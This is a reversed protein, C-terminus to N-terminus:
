EYYEIDIDEIFIDEQEYYLFQECDLGENAQLLPTVAYGDRDVCFMYGNQDQIAEYNGNVQCRM